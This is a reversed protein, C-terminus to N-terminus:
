YGNEQGVGHMKCRVPDPGRRDSAVDARFRCGGRCEQLFECDCTLDSLRLKPLTEWCRRLGQSINGGSWDNYFGCKTLTGDARVSALHAGCAYDGSSGHVEGGFQYDLQPIALDMPAVLEPHEALRGAVAPIDITWSVAAHRNVLEAVDEFEDLNAAHVMTAVSVQKGAAALAELGALARPFSGKGRLAEHGPRMGDLSVQVNHFRLHEAAARDVLSGNTSLISRFSRGAVLDNIEWFTPACMPEGGSVILRMGGMQEFEDLVSSLLTLDLDVARAPGLYCHRCALNCRTTVDVVLYRLSPEGCSGTRVTVPRRALSAVVLDESLCYGLFDSDPQLEGVTAEGSCRKLFGLADEGLEYLDDTDARYVYSLELLKLSVQPGLALYDSASPTPSRTM